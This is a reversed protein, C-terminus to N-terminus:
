SSRSKANIRERAWACRECDSLHCLLAAPDRALMGSAVAIIDGARMLMLTSLGVTTERILGMQRLTDGVVNFGNSCGPRRVTVETVEKGRLVAAVRTRGVYPVKMSEEATHIMSNSRHDVGMLLVWGDNRSLRGLPSTHGLPDMHQHNALMEEALPGIAAFAHTPHNSRVAGPRRWFADSIAGTLSQTTAPDYPLSGYNFTPVIVTGGPAVSELLAQAASTAGGDVRGFRSLSSHVLLLDGPGVGLSCIGAIIEAKVVDGM